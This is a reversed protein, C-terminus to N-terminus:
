QVGLTAGGDVTLSHLTIHGAEDSLLFAVAEAVDEPRAVKGLPIGTRFAAPTGDVSRRVATDGDHMGRLMPTDTSGPAVVNCRVGHPAVELGLCKTFATAAAKSAAYAAMETRATGAANSAVTVVAGGGRAVMRDVVARSVHFVGTANVAFTDAWDQDTLKRAEGLRLVGAANVLYDLPGLADEVGAVARDVDASSSVDAPVATVKLGRATLRGVAEALRGPDRDVAAVAAGREALARVVAEGIGGAAGTVLATRDQM